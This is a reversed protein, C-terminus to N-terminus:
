LVVVVALARKSVINDGAICLNHLVIRLYESRLVQYAVIIKHCALNILHQLIIRQYINLCGAFNVSFRHLPLEGYVGIQKLQLGSKLHRGKIAQMVVLLFACKLHVFHTPKLVLHNLFEKCCLCFTPYIARYPLIHEKFDKTIILQSM